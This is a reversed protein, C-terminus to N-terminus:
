ERHRHGAGVHTYIARENLSGFLNILRKRLQRVFWLQGPVMCSILKMGQVSNSLVKAEFTSCKSLCRQVIRSRIEHMGCPVSVPQRCDDKALAPILM